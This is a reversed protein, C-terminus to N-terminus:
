LTTILSDIQKHLEEISGNNLIVGDFPFNDLATESNHANVAEVGDKVVRFVKGYYSKIQAFENPFRVDTFVVQSDSSVKNQQWAQHVWFDTGFMQRGVETGMRQLLGRVQPSSQKVLEWGLSDVASRLHVGPVEPIDSIIPDLRYLAERLPDAFAIRKFGYNTVLHQAITDKGTQAYGSLGIIM